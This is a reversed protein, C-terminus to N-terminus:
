GGYDNIPARTAAACGEVDSLALQSASGVVRVRRVQHLPDRRMPCAPIGAMEFLGGCFGFFHHQCMKVYENFLATWKAGLSILWVPLVECQYARLRAPSFVVEGLSWVM